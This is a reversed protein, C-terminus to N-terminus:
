AAKQIAAETSEVVEVAVKHDALENQLETIENQIDSIRREVAKKGNHGKLHDLAQEFTMTVDTSETKVGTRRTTRRRSKPSQTASKPRKGKGKKKGSSTLNNEVRWQYKATNFQNAETKWQESNRDTDEPVVEIGLKALRSRAQSHTISPKKVLLKRVATTFEGRHRAM